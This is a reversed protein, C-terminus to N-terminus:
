RFGWRQQWGRNVCSWVPISVGLAAGLLLAVAGDVVLGYVVSAGTTTVRAFVPIVLAVIARAVLTIVIRAVTIGIAIITGPVIVARKAVFVAAFSHALAAVIVFADTDLKPTAISRVAPIIWHASTIAAPIYEKNKCRM